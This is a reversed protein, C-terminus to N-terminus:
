VSFGKKMLYEKLRARIRSLRIRAANVSIGQRKALAYLSEFAFYRGIFLTRDTPSLQEIFENLAERLEESDTTHEDSLVESLEDLSANYEGGGRKDATSHRLKDIATRRTLMCAYSCVSAPSAPPITNWVELLVDNVCEEADQECGVIRLALSTLLKGYQDAIHKLVEEDRSNLMQLLVDNDNM